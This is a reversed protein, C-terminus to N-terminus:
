EDECAECRGYHRDVVSAHCRVAGGDDPGSDPGRHQRRYEQLAYRANATLVKIAHSPDDGNDILPQISEVHEVVRELLWKLDTSDARIKEYTRQQEETLQM